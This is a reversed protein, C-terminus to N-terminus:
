IPACHVCGEGVVRGIVHRNGTVIRFVRGALPKLPALSMVYSLLRLGGVAWMVVLYADPVGIWVRGDNAAVIMHEGYDPTDGFRAIADSDAAAIVDIGVHTRQQRLWRVSRRCLMCDGDYVVTLSEIRGPQSNLM